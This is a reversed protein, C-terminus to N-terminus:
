PLDELRARLRDRGNRGREELASSVRSRHDRRTRGARVLPNGPPSDLIRFASGLERRAAILRRYHNLLSGPEARQAEVNREAPDILPLWPEGTTFGGASSADWQMPHRLRDRGARDYPPEHGPGNPLGLEDGQYIFAAGPLTM